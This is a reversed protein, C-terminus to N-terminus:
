HAHASFVCAWHTHKMQLSEPHVIDTLVSHVMHCHWATLKPVIIYINNTTNHVHHTTTGDKRGSNTYQIQGSGVYTCHSINLTCLFTYVHIYMHIHQLNKSTTHNEYVKFQRYICTHRGPKLRVCLKLICMCQICYGDSALYLVHINRVCVTCTECAYIYSFM